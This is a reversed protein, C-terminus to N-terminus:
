ACARPSRDDSSHQRGDSRVRFKGHLTDACPAAKPTKVSEARFTLARYFAGRHDRLKRGNTRNLNCYPSWQFRQRDCRHAGAIHCDRIWYLIAAGDKILLKRGDLDRESYTIAETKGEATAFDVYAFSRISSCKSDRRDLWGLRAGYGRNVSNGVDSKMPMHIRTVEGALRFFQKIARQTTQFSLNGVWVSNQRTAPKDNGRGNKKPSTSSVDGALPAAEIKAAKADQKRRKRAAAHSVVEASGGQAANEPGEPLPADHDIPAESPSENASATENTAGLEGHRRKKSTRSVGATLTLTKTASM